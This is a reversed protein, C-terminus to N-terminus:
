CKSMECHLARCVHVVHVVALSPGNKIAESASVAFVTHDPNVSRLLKLRLLKVM